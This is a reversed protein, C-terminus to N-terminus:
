GNTSATPTLDSLFTVPSSTAAATGTTAPAATAILAPLLALLAGRKATLRPM